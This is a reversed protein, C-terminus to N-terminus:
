DGMARLVDRLQAAREYNEAEIAQELRRRVMDTENPAHAQIQELMDSLLSMSRMKELAFTQTEVEDLSRVSSIAELIIAAAADPASSQSAAIARAVANMRIIYPWYQNLADRDEDCEAYMGVFRFAEMNRETDRAVQDYDGVQFCLLYRFYFLLSEERLRACDERTLAFDAPTLGQGIREALAAKYFEMWSERDCPRKGDPRGVLDYQELGLPLRVQLKPQGDAGVIKRVNGSPDYPWSQLIPGIDETM